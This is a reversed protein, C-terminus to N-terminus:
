ETNMYQVHIGSSILMADATRHAIAVSSKRSDGHTERYYSLLNNLM